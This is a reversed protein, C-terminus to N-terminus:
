PSCYPAYTSQKVKLTLQAGCEPCVIQESFDYPGPASPKPEIDVGFGLYEAESWELSEWFGSQDIRVYHRFAVRCPRTDSVLINASNFNSVDVPM